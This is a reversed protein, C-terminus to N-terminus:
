VEGGEWAIVEKGRGKRVENNNKVEKGHSHIMEKEPEAEQIERKL